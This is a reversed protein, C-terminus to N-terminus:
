LNSSQFSLILNFILYSVYMYITEVCWDWQMLEIKDAELEMLKSLADMIAKLGAKLVEVLEVVRDSEEELMKKMKKSGSPEVKM